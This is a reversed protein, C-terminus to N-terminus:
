FIATGISYILVALVIATFCVYMRDRELAFAALCFAVRAVPTAILVLLGAGMLREPLDLTLFAGLGLTEPHFQGYDSVARGSSMVYWFGGALVLAAALAVGARLLDAIIAEMKRDTM